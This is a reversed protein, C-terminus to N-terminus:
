PAPRVSVESVIRDLRFARPEGDQDAYVVVDGSYTDAIRTPTVIRYSRAGKADEYQFTVERDFEVALDLVARNWDEASPQRGSVSGFIFEDEAQRLREVAEPKLLDEVTLETPQSTAFATRTAPADPYNSSFATM